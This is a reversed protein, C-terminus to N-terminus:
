IDTASPTLGGARWAASFETLERIAPHTDFPKAAELILGLRRGAHAAQFPDAAALGGRALDAVQELDPDASQLVALAGDMRFYLRLYSGDREAAERADATVDDFRGPSGLRAYAYGIGSAFATPHYTAMDDVIIRLADPGHQEPSLGALIIEAEGVATDVGGLDGGAARHGAVADLLLARQPSRKTTRRLGDLAYREAAMPDGAYDEVVAQLYRAWAILQDDDTLEGRRHAERLSVRAAAINGANNELWGRIGAAVGAVRWLRAADAPRLLYEAQIGDTLEQVAAVRGLIVEPPHALYDAIVTRLAAEATAVAGDAAATRELAALRDDSTLAPV